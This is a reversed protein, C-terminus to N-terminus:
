VAKNYIEKVAAPELLKPDECLNVAATLAEDILVNMAMEDSVFRWLTQKLYFSDVQVQQVGARSFNTKRVWELYLRLCKDLVCGIISYRKFELKPAAFEEVADAWMRELAGSLADQNNMSHVRRQSLSRISDPTREKKTSDDMLVQLNEDLAQVERVLGKTEERVQNPSGKATPWSASNSHFSEFFGEGTQEAFRALVKLAAEEILEIIAPPRTLLADAVEETIKYQEQCLDMLYKLNKKTIGHLFIGLILNADTILSPTVNTSYEALDKLSAVVVSEHVDVGFSSFSHASDASILFTIDSATFLLLNALSTKVSVLFTQDLKGLLPQLFDNGFRSSSSSNSPSKTKLETIVEELATQVAQLVGKRCIKIQHHAADVVIATNEVSFDLHPLLKCCASIKRYTRDLARVYLACERPNSELEFRAILLNKLIQMKEKLMTVFESDPSTHFLESHLSAMLSLDALFPCIGNEVFDLVDNFNKTKEGEVLKAELELPKLQSELQDAWQKSLEKELNEMPIGLDNLLRVTEVFDESSLVPAKFNQRLKNEIRNIVDICERYIGKMSEYDKVKELQNKVSNFSKIAKKFENREYHTQLKKPLNVVFNLSKVTKSADTLKRVNERKERFIVSLEASLASIRAMKDSVNHMEEDMKGFETQMKRVTSTATLFKNYNEYVLHQMENDLRRVNQVMNEEVAVLEDLGKNRILNSVFAESDFQPSNLNMPDNDALDNEM